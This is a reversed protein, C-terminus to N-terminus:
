LRSVPIAFLLMGFPLHYEACNFGDSALSVKTVKKQFNGMAQTELPDTAILYDQEDEWKQRQERMAPDLSWTRKDKVPKTFGIPAKERILRQIEPNKLITFDRSVDGPVRMTPSGNDMRYFNWTGDRGWIVTKQWPEFMRGYGIADGLPIGPVLISPEQFGEYFGDARYFGYGDKLARGKLTELDSANQAPTKEGLNASVIAFPGELLWQFIRATGGATVFRKFNAVPDSKVYSRNPVKMGAIKVADRERKRNYTKGM